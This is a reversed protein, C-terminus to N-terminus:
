KLSKRLTFISALLGFILMGQANFPNKYCHKSLYTQLDKFWAYIFYRSKIHQKFEEQEEPTMKSILAEKASGLVHFPIAAHIVYIAAIVFINYWALKKVFGALLVFAWILAHTIELIDYLPIFAPM